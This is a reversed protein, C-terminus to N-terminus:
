GCAPGYAIREADDLRCGEREQAADLARVHDLTKGPEIKTLPGLTELELFEANTFTEFLMRFGSIAEERRSTYHKIFLDAGLSVRGLYPISREWSEAAPPIKADQRLMM